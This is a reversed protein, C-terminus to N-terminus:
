MDIYRLRTYTREVVRAAARKKGTLVKMVSEKVKDNSMDKLRMMRRAKTVKINETESSLLLRLM